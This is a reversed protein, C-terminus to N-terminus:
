KNNKLIQRTDQNFVVSFNTNPISPVNNLNYPNSQKANKNYTKVTNSKYLDSCSDPVYKTHPAHQLAYVQNKLISETDINNVYRCWKGNINCTNANSNTTSNFNYNNEYNLIIAKCSEHPIINQLPMTCLTSQPRPSILAEINEFQMTRELIRKNIYNSYNSTNSLYNSNNSNNSNTLNNKVEM